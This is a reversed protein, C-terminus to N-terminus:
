NIINEKERDIECLERCIHTAAYQNATRHLWSDSGIPDSHHGEAERVPCLAIAPVQFLSAWRPWLAEKEVKHLFRDTPLWKKEERMCSNLGNTNFFFLFCRKQVKEPPFHCRGLSCTRNFPFVQSSCTVSRDVSTKWFTPKLTSVTVRNGYRQSPSM